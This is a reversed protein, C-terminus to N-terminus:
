FAETRMKVTIISMKIQKEIKRALSRRGKYLLFGNHKTNQLNDGAHVAASQFRHQHIVVTVYVACAHLEIKQRM